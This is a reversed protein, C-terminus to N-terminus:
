ALTALSYGRVWGSDNLVGSPTCSVVAAVRTRACPYCKRGLVHTVSKPLSTPNIKLHIPHRDALETKAAPHHQLRLRLTASVCACAGGLLWFPHALSPWPNM